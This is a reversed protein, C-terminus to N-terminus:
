SGLHTSRAKADAMNFKELLKKVYKVQSIKLTNTVRNRDICMGLIKKPAGLDKMNFEKYLQNKLTNIEQIDSGDILLDDVHLLLIINSSDFKKLYFSHDMECINYVSMIM